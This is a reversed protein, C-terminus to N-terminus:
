KEDLWKSPLRYRGKPSLQVIAWGENTKVMHKYSRHKWGGYMEKDLKRYHEQGKKAATKSSYIHIVNWANGDKKVYRLGEKRYVKYLKTTM